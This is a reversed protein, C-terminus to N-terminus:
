LEPIDWYKWKNTMKDRSYYYRERRSLGLYGGHSVYPDLIM